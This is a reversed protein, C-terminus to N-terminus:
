DDIDSETDSNQDEIQLPRGPGLRSSRGDTGTTQSFIFILYHMKASLLHYFIVVDKGSGM